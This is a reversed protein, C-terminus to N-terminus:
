QRGPGVGINNGVYELDITEFSAVSRQLGSSSIEVSHHKLLQAHVSQVVYLSIFWGFQECLASASLNLYIYIRVTLAM